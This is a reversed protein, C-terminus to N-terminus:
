RRSKRGVHSPDLSEHVRRKSQADGCQELSEGQEREHEDRHRELIQCRQGRCHADGTAHRTRGTKTFPIGTPSPTSTGGGGPLSASSRATMSCEGAPIAGTPQAAPPEAETRWVINGARDMLTVASLADVVVVIHGADHTFALTVLGRPLLHREASERAFHEHKPDLLLQTHWGDVDFVRLNNDDRVLLAAHGGDDIAIKTLAKPFRAAKRLSYGAGVAQPPDILEVKENWM